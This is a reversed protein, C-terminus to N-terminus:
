HAPKISKLTWCLMQLCPLQQHLLPIYARFFRQFNSILSCPSIVLPISPLFVNPFMSSSLYNKQRPAGLFLVGWRFLPLRQVPPLCPGFLPSVHPWEKCFAAPLFFLIWYHDSFTRCFGRHKLFKFLLVGARVFQKRSRLCSFGPHGGFNHVSTERWFQVPGTRFRRLLVSKQKEHIIRGQWGSLRFPFTRLCLINTKRVWSYWKWPSLGRSAPIMALQFLGQFLFAFALTHKAALHITNLFAASITLDM